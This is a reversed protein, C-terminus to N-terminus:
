GHHADHQTFALLAKDGEHAMHVRGAQRHSGDHSLKAGKSDDARVSGMQAEGV